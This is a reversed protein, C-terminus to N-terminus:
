VPRQKEFGRERLWASLSPVGDWSFDVVRGGYKEDDYDTVTVPFRPFVCPFFGADAMLKALAAIAARGLDTYREAVDIGYVRGRREHEYLDTDNSDVPRLYALTDGDVIRVVAAPFQRIM